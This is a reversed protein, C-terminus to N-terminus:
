YLSSLSARQKSCHTIQGGGEKVISFIEDKSLYTTLAQQWLASEKQFVFIRTTKFIKKTGFNNGDTKKFILKNLQLSTVKVINHHNKGYM